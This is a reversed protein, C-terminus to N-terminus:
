GHPRYAAPLYPSGTRATRTRTGVVEITAPVIAVEVSHPAHRAALQVARDPDTHPVAAPTLVALTLTACTAALAALAIGPRFQPRTRALYRQTTTHM